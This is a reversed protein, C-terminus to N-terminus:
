KRMFAKWSSTGASTKVAVKVKGKATGKPVKVKIKTATWSTYKTAKKAGFKVYGSGRKSGFNKGTLTVVAGVRGKTPSLKMLTPKVPTPTSSPTSSPSPTVSSASSDYRALGIGAAGVTRVVSRVMVRSETSTTSLAYGAVVLKGDPGIGAAACDDAGGFDTIVAGNQGFAIDLSGDALRRSVWIDNYTPYGNDIRGGLIIQGAPQVALYKTTRYPISVSTQPWLTMPLKVLGANGFSTDLSGNAKFVRLESGYTSVSVFRGDPYFAVDGDVPSMPSGSLVIRGGSGFSTDVAGSSTLMVIGLDNTQVSGALLVRGDPSCKMVFLNETSGGVIDVIRRGNSGFSTDITGDQNVCYVAFDRSILTQLTGGLLVKGDSRVALRRVAGINDGAYSWPSIDLNVMGATGFNTDIDGTSTFCALASANSGAIVIRGDKLLAMDAVDPFAGGSTSGFVSIFLASLDIMKKGGDAFTSDLSGNANFRVLTVYTSTSGVDRHTGAVIYKGDGQIALAAAKDIGAGFATLAIGNVGFSADLDGAAAHALAVIGTMCVLVLLVVVTVQSLLSRM